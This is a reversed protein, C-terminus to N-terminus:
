KAQFTYFRFTDFVDSERNEVGFGEVTFEKVSIVDNLDCTLNFLVMLADVNTTDQIKILEFEGYEDYTEVMIEDILASKFPVVKNESSFVKEPIANQEFYASSLPYYTIQKQNSAWGNLNFLPITILYNYDQISFSEDLYMNSYGMIKDTFQISQKKGYVKHLVLRREPGYEEDLLLIFDGSVLKASLKNKDIDYGISFNLAVNLDQVTKQITDTVYYEDGFEDFDVYDVIQTLQQSFLEKSFNQYDFGNKIFLDKTNGTNIDAQLQSIIQKNILTGMLPDKTSILKIEFNDTHYSSVIGFQIDFEDPLKQGHLPAVLFLLIAIVAFHNKM